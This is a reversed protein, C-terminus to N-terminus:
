RLIFQRLALGGLITGAIAVARIRRRNGALLEMWALAAAPILALWGPQTLRSHAITVAQIALAGVFAGVGARALAHDPPRFVASLALTTPILTVAIMALGLLTLLTPSRAPFQGRRAVGIFIRDPELADLLRAGVRVLTLAPHERIYTLALRTASTSRARESLGAFPAWVVSDLMARYGHVIPTHENNGIYFNMAGNTNPAWTGLVAHNRACWVGIVLSSALAALIWPGPAVRRRTVAGIAFGAALPLASFRVLGLAGAFVGGAIAGMRREHARWTVCAWVFAAFVLFALTETYVCLFYSAFSLHLLFLVAALRAVEEGAARRTAAVLLVGGIVSLLLQVAVIAPVSSAGARAILALFAPWGPDRFATPDGTLPSLYRGSHLLGDRLGLYERQDDAVPVVPGVLAWLALRLAIAFTALWMLWMRGGLWKGAPIKLVLADEAEEDV